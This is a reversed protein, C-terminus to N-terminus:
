FFYQRSRLLSLTVLPQKQVTAQLIWPSTSLFRFTHLYSFMEQLVQLYWIISKKLLFDQNENRVFGQRVNSSLSTIEWKRKEQEEVFAQSTSCYNCVYKHSSHYHYSLASGLEVRRGM